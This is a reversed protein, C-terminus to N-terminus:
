ATAADDIDTLEPLSAGRKRWEEVINAVPSNATAVSTIGCDKLRQRIVNLDAATPEVRVMEGDKTVIERGEKLIKLLQQDYLDAINDLQSM